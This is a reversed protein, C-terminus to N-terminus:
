KKVRDGREVQISKEDSNEKKMRDIVAINEKIADAWMRASKVRDM